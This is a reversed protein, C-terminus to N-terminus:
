STLKKASIMEAPFVRGDVGHKLLSKAHLTGNEMLRVIKERTYPGLSNQGQVVYIEEKHQNSM